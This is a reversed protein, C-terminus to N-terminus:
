AYSYPELDQPFSREFIKVPLAALSDICDTAWRIIAVGLAIPVVWFAWAGVNVLLAERLTESSQRWARQIHEAPSAEIRRIRDEITVRLDPNENLMQKFDRLLSPSIRHCLHIATNIADDIEEFVEDDLSTDATKMRRVEDRLAFLRFRIRLRMSPALIGEYILYLTAFLMMCLFLTAM